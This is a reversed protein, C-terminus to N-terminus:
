THGVEGPRPAPTSTMPLPAGDGQRDKSLRCAVVRTLPGTWLLADNLPTRPLHTRRSRPWKDRYAGLGRQDARGAFRLSSDPTLGNLDRFQGKRVVRTQEV